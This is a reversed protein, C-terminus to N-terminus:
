VLMDKIVTTIKEESIYYENELPKSTPAPADTLTLRVPRTL